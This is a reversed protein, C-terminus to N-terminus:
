NQRQLICINECELIFIYKFTKLFIDISLVNTLKLLGHVKKEGNLWSNSTESYRVVVKCERVGSVFDYM